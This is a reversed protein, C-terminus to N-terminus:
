ADVLTVALGVLVADLILWFIGDYTWDSPALIGALLFTMVDVVVVFVAANSILLQGTLLMLVPQVLVSILSLALGIGLYTGFGATTLYIGPLFPFILAVVVTNTALQILFHRM